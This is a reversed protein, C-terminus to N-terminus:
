NFHFFFLLPIKRWLLGTKGRIFWIEPLVLSLCGPFYSGHFVTDERSRIETDLVHCGTTLTPHPDRLSSLIDEHYGGGKTNWLDIASGTADFSSWLIILFRWSWSIPPIEFNTVDVTWSVTNERLTFVISRSQNNRLVGSDAFYASVTFINSGDM